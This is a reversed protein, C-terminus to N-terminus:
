SQKQTHKLRTSLLRLIEALDDAEIYGQISNRILQALGDLIHLELLVSRDIGDVFTQLLKRFDDQDLVAALSVVEAVVDPKKLEDRVFAKILDTAVTQFRQQEDSDDLRTHLWSRESENLEEPVLSSNLLSLCYGLQPTSTIREGIDPLVYKAMPPAANRDFIKQRTQKADENPVAIGDTAKASTTNQSHTPAPQVIDYDITSHGKQANTCSIQSQSM